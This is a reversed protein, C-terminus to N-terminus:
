GKGAVLDADDNLLKDKVPKFPYREGRDMSERFLKYDTFGSRFDVGKRCSTQLGDGCGWSHFLYM